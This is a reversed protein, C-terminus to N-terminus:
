DDEVMTDFTFRGSSTSEPEGEETWDQPKVNDVLYSQELTNWLGVNNFQNFPDLNSQLMSSFLLQLDWYM